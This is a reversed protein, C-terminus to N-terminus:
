HLQFTYIRNVVTRQGPTTTPNSYLQGFGDMDYNCTLAQTESHNEATLRKDLTIVHLIATCLNNVQPM